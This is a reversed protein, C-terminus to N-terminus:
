SSIAACDVAPLSGTWFAHNAAWDIQASQIVLYRDQALYHAELWAPFSEGLRCLAWHTPPHETLYPIALEQQFSETGFLRVVTPFNQGLCKLLRWWYQQHYIEIRQVASLTKTPAIYRSAEQEQNTGWPSHVPLRQSPQLPQAIMQGFWQFM